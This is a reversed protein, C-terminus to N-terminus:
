DNLTHIPHRRALDLYSGSLGDKVLMWKEKLRNKITRSPYKYYGRKDFDVKYDIQNLYEIANDLWKGQHLCGAADYPIPVEAEAALCTLKIKMKNARKTGYWESTWPNEHPLAMERLVKKKWFAIQYSFMDRSPPVVKLIDKSETPNFERYEQHGLCFSDLDSSIFYDYYEKVKLDNVKGMFIYDIMMFLLHDSDIRDLGARFVTGFDGLRGLRTCVINLGESQFSREETNLYIIGKYEPWNLKFLDFFIPWLDAYSDASSIFIPCDKM